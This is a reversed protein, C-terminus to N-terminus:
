AHHEGTELGHWRQYEREAIQEATLVVILDDVTPDPEDGDPVAFLERLALKQWPTLTFSAV